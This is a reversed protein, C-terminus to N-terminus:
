QKEKLCKRGIIFIILSLVILVTSISCASVIDNSLIAQYLKASLTNFELNFLGLSLLMAFCIGAYLKGKLLPYEINRFTAKNSFGLTRSAISLQQSQGKLGLLTFCGTVPITIVIHSLILYVISPIPLTKSLIFYSFGICMPGAVLALLILSDKHTNVVLLFSIVSGILAAVLALCLSNLVTHLFDYNFLSQLNVKSIVFVIPALCFVIALLYLIFILLKVEFAEVKRQESNSFDETVSPIRYLLLAVINIVTSILCLVAAYSYSGDYGFNLITSSISAEPRSLLAAVSFFSLNKMFVLISANIETNRLSYQMIQRYYTARKVGLTLAIDERKSDLKTWQNKIYAYALPANHLAMILTIVVLSTNFSYNIGLKIFILLYAFAFVLPSIVSTFTLIFNLLKKSKFNFQTFIFTQILGLFTALASSVISVVLTSLITFLIDTNSVVYSFSNDKFAQLFGFCLPVVCIILLIALGIKKSM